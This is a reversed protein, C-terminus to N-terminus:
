NRCVVMEKPWVVCEAIGDLPKDGKLKNKDFRNSQKHCVNQARLSYRAFLAVFVRAARVESPLLPLMKWLPLLEPIICLVTVRGAVALLCLQARMDDDRSLAHLFAPVVSGHRALLGFLVGGVRGGPFLHKWAVTEVLDSEVFPHVCYIRGSRTRVRSYILFTVVM